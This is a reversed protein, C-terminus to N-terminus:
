LVLATWLWLGPAHCTGRVRPFSRKAAAFVATEWWEVARERALTNWVDQNHPTASSNEMAKALWHPRTRDGSVFGRSTLTALIAGFRADNQIAAPWWREPDPCARLNRTAATSM